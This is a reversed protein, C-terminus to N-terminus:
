RVAESQIIKKDLYKVNNYAQIFLNRSLLVFEIEKEEGRSLLEDAIADESRTLVILQAGLKALEWNCQDFTQEDFLSSRGYIFPWVIEGVHWRDLVLNHSKIPRIYEEVWNSSTPHSAHLYDANRQDALKRAFTTKGTGDSGEIITIM